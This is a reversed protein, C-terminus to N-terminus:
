TTYKYRQQQDHWSIRESSEDLFEVHRIHLSIIGGGGGGRHGGGGGRAGHVDVGGNLNSDMYRVRRATRKGTAPQDKFMLNTEPKQNWKLSRNKETNRIWRIWM